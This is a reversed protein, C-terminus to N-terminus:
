APSDMYSSLVAAKPVLSAALRVTFAITYIGNALLGIRAMQGMIVPHPPPQETTQVTYDYLLNLISYTLASALTLCAGYVQNSDEVGLGPSSASPLSVQGSAVSRLILGGVVLVLQVWSLSIEFVACLCAALMCM